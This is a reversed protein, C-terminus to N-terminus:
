TPTTRARLSRQLRLVLVVFFTAFAAAGVAGCAAAALLWAPSGTLVAVALLSWAALHAIEHVPLAAEFALASPTPPRRQTGRAAHMSALFPLIRQLVGFLASGLWGGVAATAALMGWPVDSWAAPGAAGLAVCGLAAAAAWWGIRVLRASRGLDRRMGGALVRRMMRVHGGLALAAAGLALWLTTTAVGPGSPAFGAFAFLLLAVIAAGGSRLQSTEAPVPALAFMPLLITSLGLLLLGMVGPVGAAAHAARLVDRSLAPSAVGNWLAVLAGASAGLLVLAALAGWGHLVVGPMGRAGRLNAALLVAWAALVALV